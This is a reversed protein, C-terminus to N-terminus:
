KIKEIKFTGQKMVKGHDGTLLIRFYYTGSTKNALNFSQIGFGAIQSFERTAVLHGNMDLLQISIKGTSAARFDINVDNGAPVPYIRIEEKSWEPIIPNVVTYYKYFPQLFGSTINYESGIISNPYFNQGYYTEIVTSEGISWDVIFSSTVPASGGGINLTVPTVTQAFTYSASFLSLVLLIQKM